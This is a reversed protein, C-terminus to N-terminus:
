ARHFKNCYPGHYNKNPALDMYDKASQHQRKSQGHGLPCAVHKALFSVHPTPKKQEIWTTLFKVIWTFCARAGHGRAMGGSSAALLSQVLIGKEQSDQRAAARHGCAPQVQLMLSKGAAPTKFIRFRYSIRPHPSM